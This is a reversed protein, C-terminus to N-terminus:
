WNLSREVSRMLPSSKGVNNVQISLLTGSTKPVELGLSTHVPHYPSYLDFKEHYNTIERSELVRKKGSLLQNLDVNVDRENTSRYCAPKRFIKSSDVQPRIYEATSRVSTFGKSNDNYNKDMFTARRNSIM